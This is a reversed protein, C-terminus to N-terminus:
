RNCIAKKFNFHQRKVECASNISFDTKKQVLGSPLTYGQRRGPILFPGKSVTKGGLNFLPM